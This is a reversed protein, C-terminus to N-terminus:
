EVGENDENFKIIIHATVVILIVVVVALIMMIINAKTKRRMDRM